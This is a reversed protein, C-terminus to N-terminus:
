RNRWDGSEIVTDAAFRSAFDTPLVYTECETGDDLTIRTRRYFDPHGEIADCARVHEPAVAYLEGHVVQEGDPLLAPFAGGHCEVFTWEDRTTREGLYRASALVHERCEGRLLTGYVFLLSISTTPTSETPTTM